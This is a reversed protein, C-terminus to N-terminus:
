NPVLHSSGSGALLIASKGEPKARELAALCNEPSTYTEITIGDTLQVLTVWWRWGREVSAIEQPNLFYTEQTTTSVVLEGRTTWSAWPAAASCQQANRSAAVFLVVGLVTVGYASLEIARWDHRM